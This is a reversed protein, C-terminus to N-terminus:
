RINVTTVRGSEYRIRIQKFEVSARELASMLTYLHQLVTNSSSGAYSDKLKEIAFMERYDGKVGSGDVFIVKDVREIEILISDVKYNYSSTRMAVIESFKELITELRAPTYFDRGQIIVNM